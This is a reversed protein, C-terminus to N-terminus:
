QRNRGELGGSTSTNIGSGQPVGAAVEFNCVWLWKAFACVRTDEQSLLETAKIVRGVSTYTVEEGNQLVLPLLRLLAVYDKAQFGTLKRLTDVWTFKPIFRGNTEKFVTSSLQHLRGFHTTIVLLISFMAFREYRNLIIDMARSAAVPSAATKRVFPDLWIDVYRAIGEDILHMRDGPVREWVSFKACICNFIERLFPTPILPHYGLRHFEKKAAGKKFTETVHGWSKFEQWLPARDHGSRFECGARLFQVSLM